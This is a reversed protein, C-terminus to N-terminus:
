GRGTKVIDDGAELKMAEVAIVEDGHGTVLITPPLEGRAALTHWVELGKAPPDDNKAFSV